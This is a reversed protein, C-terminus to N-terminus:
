VWWLRESVWLRERVGAAVEILADAASSDAAEAMDAGLTTVLGMAFPFAEAGASWCDSTVGKRGSWSSRSSANCGSLSKTPRSKCLVATADAVFARVEVVNCTM